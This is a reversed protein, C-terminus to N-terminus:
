GPTERICISDGARGYSDGFRGPLVFLLAYFADKQCIKAFTLFKPSMKEM